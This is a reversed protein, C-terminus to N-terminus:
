VWVVVGVGVSGCGCENVEGVSGMGEEGVM